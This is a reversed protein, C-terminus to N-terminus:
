YVVTISGSVIDVEEIGTRLDIIYYYTSAPLFAGRNTGDWGNENTYGVAYYVKQGWRDYVTVACEPFNEIRSINWLDNKGDGNPTFTNPVIIAPTVNVVVEDSIVCGNNTATLTYVTTSAPSAEPNAIQYNSLNTIPSWVLSGTGSGQMIISTGLFMLTDPGADVSISTVNFALANSVSPVSCPTNCSIDCTIVDGDVLTSILFLSDTGNQVTNGNLKWEYNYGSACGSAIAVIGVEEDQCVDTSGTILTALPLEIPFVSIDAVNSVNSAVAACANDPTMVCYVADGDNLVAAYSDTTGNQVSVGNLFFEFNPNLGAQAYTAQITINDGNCAPNPNASISIEPIDTPTQDFLIINQYEYICGTQDSVVIHYTGASLGNFVGTAQPAGANLSFAYPATGGSVSLDISGDALGCSPDSTILIPTGPGGTNVVSINDITEFCGNADQVMVSYTGGNLGTFTGSAQTTAGLIYTYPATGGTVGTIQIEGDAACNNAVTAVSGASPGGIQSVTETGAYYICGNDDQALIQYSGANLNIFTTNGQYAGSNISYSYPPTGGSVGTIDVQGDIFGCSQPSSTTTITVDVAAGSVLIEFDCEAANVSGNIDGDVLVYYTTNPALGVANLVFDASSGAECNSVASYTTEDCPAAADIVIAQLEDDNDTGVLCSINSISVTASGGIANTMFSFWVTNNLEFCFNGSVLAGDSCGPCVDTTAGINSAAVPVDPCLARANQCDDYLSQSISFCAGLVMCLSLVLCRMFVFKFMLEALKFM